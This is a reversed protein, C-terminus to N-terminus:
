FILKYRRFLEKRQEATWPRGYFGEVVGCIFPHEDGAIEMDEGDKKGKGSTILKKIKSKVNGMQKEDSKISPKDIFSESEKAESM